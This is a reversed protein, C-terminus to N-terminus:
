FLMYLYGDVGTHTSWYDPDLEDVRPQFLKLFVSYTKTNMFLKRKNMQVTDINKDIPIECGYKELRCKCWLIFAVLTALIAGVILGVFNYFADKQSDTSAFIHPLAM